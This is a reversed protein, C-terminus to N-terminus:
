QKDIMMEIIHGNERFFNVIGELEREDCVGLVIGDSFITPSCDLRTEFGQIKLYISYGGSPHKKFVVTQRSAIRKKQPEGDIAITVGDLSSLDDNIKISFDEKNDGM